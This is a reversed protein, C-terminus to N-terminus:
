LNKCIGKSFNRYKFPNLTPSKSKVWGKTLTYIVVDRDMYTPIHKRTEPSIMHLTNTDKIEEM